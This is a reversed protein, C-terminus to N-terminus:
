ELLDRGIFSAAFGGVVGSFVLGATSAWERAQMRSPDANWGFWWPPDSADPLTVFVFLGCVGGWLAFELCRYRNRRTHIIIWSCIFAISVHLPIVTASLLLSLEFGMFFDPPKYALGALLLAVTLCMTLTFVVYASLFRIIAGIM